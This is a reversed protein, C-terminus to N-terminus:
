LAEFNPVLGVLFHDPQILLRDQFCTRTFLGNLTRTEVSGGLFPIVHGCCVGVGKSPLRVEAYVHILNGDDDQWSNLFWEGSDNMPSCPTGFNRRNLYM